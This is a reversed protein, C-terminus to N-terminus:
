NIKLPDSEKLISSRENSIRDLQDKSLDLEDRSMEIEPCEDQICSRLQNVEFLIEESVTFIYVPCNLSACVFTPQPRWMLVVTLM